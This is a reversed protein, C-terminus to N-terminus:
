VVGVMHVSGIRLPALHCILWGVLWFRPIARGGEALPSPLFARRPAVTLRCLSDPEDDRRVIHRGVPLQPLAIQWIRHERGDAARAARM